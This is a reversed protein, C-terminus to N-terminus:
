SQGRTPVRQQPQHATQGQRDDRRQPSNTDIVPGVPLTLALPRDHHVEFTVLWHRQEVVTLGARKGSPHVHMRPDGADGSIAQFGLPIAGTRTRRLGHLHGVPKV